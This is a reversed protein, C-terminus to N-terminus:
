SGLSPVTSVKVGLLVQPLHQLLLSLGVPVFVVVSHAFVSFLPLQFNQDLQFRGMPAHSMVNLFM